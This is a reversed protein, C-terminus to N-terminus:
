YGPIRVNIKNTSGYGPAPKPSKRLLKVPIEGAIHAQFEVIAISGQVTKSESAVRLKKLSTYLQLELHNGKSGGSTAERRRATSSEPSANNALAKYLVGM